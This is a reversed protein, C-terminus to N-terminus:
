VELSGLFLIFLTETKKTSPTCYVTKTKWTFSSDLERVSVADTCKVRSYFYLKLSKCKQAAAAEDDVDMEDSMDFAIFLCFM